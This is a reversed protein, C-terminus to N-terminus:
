LLKGTSAVAEYYVAYKHTGNPAANPTYTNNASSLHGASGAVAGDVLEPFVPVIPSTQGARLIPQFKLGIVVGFGIAVTAGTGTGGTFTVSQIQSWGKVGAYTGASATLAVTEQQPNGAADLGVVSASTPAQSATGGGVTFTVNRAAVSLAAPTAIGPSGGLFYEVTGNVSATAAMFATTVATAPADWEEVVLQALQPISGPDFASPNVPSISIQGATVLQQIYKNNYFQSYTAGRPLQVVASQGPGIDQRVTAHEGQFSQLTVDLSLNMGTLNSVNVSSLM